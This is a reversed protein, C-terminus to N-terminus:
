EEEEEESLDVQKIEKAEYIYLTEPLDEQRDSNEPNGYSKVDEKIQEIEREIEKMNSCTTYWFNDSGIILYEKKAM